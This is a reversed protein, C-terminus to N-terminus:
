PSLRNIIWESEKKEYIFRDHLRSERGQWFEYYYPTIAYGGWNVPRKIKSEDFELIRNELKEDVDIFSSQKSIIAAIKSKKPRSNFYLDSEKKSIKKVKGKIRIQRELDSWFFCLGINNNNNIQKAKLSDYNTFFILKKGLIEKLLVVRSCIGNQSDYTSLVMANVDKINKKIAENLWYNLQDIPNTFLDTYLLKDLKYDIRIKNLNNKKKKM